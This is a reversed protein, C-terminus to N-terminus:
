ALAADVTGNFDNISTTTNQQVKITYPIESVANLTFRQEDRGTNEMQEFNCSEFVLYNIGFISLYNSWVKVECTASTIKQLARMADYPYKDAIGTTFIGRIQVEYDGLNIYQKISGNAGAVNSKVIAAMKNVVCLAIPLQFKKITISQQTQLDFYTLSGDSNNGGFIVTDYVLSGILDVAKVSKILEDPGDAEQVDPLKFMKQKLANLGFSQSIQFAQSGAEVTIPVIYNKDM